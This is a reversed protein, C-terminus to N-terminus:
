ASKKDKVGKQIYATIAADAFRESTFMGALEDPLEGGQNFKISFLNHGGKRFAEVDKGNVTQFLSM